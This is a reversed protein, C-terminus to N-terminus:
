RSVYHSIEAEVALEPKLEKVVVLKTFSQPGRMAALYVTAM